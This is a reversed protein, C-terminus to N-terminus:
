GPALDRVDDDEDAMPWAFEFFAFFPDFSLSPPPSFSASFPAGSTPGVDSDMVGDEELALAISSFVDCAFSDANVSICSSGFPALTPGVPLPKWGAPGDM